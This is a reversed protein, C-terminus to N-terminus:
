PLAGAPSRLIRILVLQPLPYLICHLLSVDSNILSAIFEERAEDFENDLAGVDVKCADLIPESLNAVEDGWKYEPLQPENGGWRQGFRRLLDGVFMRESIGDWYIHNFHMLVDVVTGPALLTKEDAVDAILFIVLSKASKPVGDRRQMELETRVVLGTQPTVRTKITDRAWTLAETNDRPPMYQIHPPGTEGWAATCAVEPHQFRVHALAAALEEKLGALCFSSVNGIRLTTNLYNDYQGRANENKIGVLAETGNALRQVIRPDSPLTHWRFTAPTLQSVPPLSM